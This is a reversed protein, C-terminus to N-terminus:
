IKNKHIKDLLYKKLPIENELIQDNTNLLRIGRFIKKYLIPDFVSFESLVSNEIQSQIEEFNFNNSKSTGHYFLCWERYKIAFEEVNITNDKSIVIHSMIFNNLIDQRLRYQLTEEIVTKSEINKLDGDYENIFKDYYHILISLFAELIEKKKVVETILKKNILKEFINNTSPNECFKMKFNYYRVRRWTGNDSCPILFDYNSAAILQAKNEFNEQKSYLDRGSLSEGSLLEKVRGTNIIENKEPESFYGFRAGKLHMISSNSNQSSERKDTIMSLPLKKAYPGLINKFMELLTSKANAGSGQWFFLIPEKLLNSLCTSLYVLIYEFVDKEYIIDRLIKYVEKIYENNEDYPYYNLNTYKEVKFEHFDSILISREGKNKPLMIIGNKVGIIYSNLDLETKFNYDVFVTKCQDIINKKFPSDGLKKVTNNLKKIKDKYEEVILKNEENMIIKKFKNIVIDIYKKLDESIFSSLTLPENIENYWKYLLGDEYCIRMKKDTIFYYWEKNTYIINKNLINYLIKAITYHTLIDSSSFIENEILKTYSNDLIEKYKEINEKKAYYYISKETIPYNCTKYRQITDQWLNNFDNINFKKSSKRSFYEALIRFNLNNNVGASYIGYIINRWLIRDDYYKEPLIDLFNKLTAVLPSKVQLLELDYGLDDEELTETNTNNVRENYEKKIESNIEFNITEANDISYDNDCYIIEKEDIFTLSLKKIINIDTNLVFDKIIIKNNKITYEMSRKIKYKNDPYIDTKKVNNYFLNPVMASNIDIDDNIEKLEDLIRKRLFNPLYLNPILIHYGEKFLQRKEDYNLTEKNLYYIKFKYVMDDELSIKKMLIEMYKDVIELLREEDYYRENKKNYRDLDIFIGNNDRQKESFNLNFSNLNNLMDFFDDIKNEPINYRKPYMGQNIINIDLDNKEKIEFKNLFENFKYYETINNSNM